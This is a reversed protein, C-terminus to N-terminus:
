TNRVDLDMVMVSAKSREDDAKTLFKSNGSSNPLTNTTNIPLALEPFVEQDRSITRSNLSRRKLTVSAPKVQENVTDKGINEEQVNGFDFNFCTDLAFHYKLSTDRDNWFKLIEDKWIWEERGM